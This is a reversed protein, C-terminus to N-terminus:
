LCSLRLNPTGNGASALSKGGRRPALIQSQLGISEQAISTAPEKEPPLAAPGHFHSSAEILHRPYFHVFSYRWERVRRLM